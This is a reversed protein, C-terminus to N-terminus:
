AFANILDCLDRLNKQGFGLRRKPMTLGKEVIHYSVTIAAKLSTLNEISSSYKLGRTIDEKYFSTIRRKTRIGRWIELFRNPLIKRINM